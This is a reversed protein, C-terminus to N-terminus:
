EVPLSTAQSGGGKKKGDAMDVAKAKHFATVSSSLNERKWRRWGRGRGRGRREGRGGARGGGEGGGWRLVRSWLKQSEVQM